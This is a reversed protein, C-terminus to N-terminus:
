GNDQVVRVRAPRLIDEGWHYGRGVEDFVIGAAHQDSQVTGIAEHRAPDFPQGVSEFPMVGCTNLMRALRRRLAHLGEVVSEPSDNVHVLAREFDDELDLLSLLLERKGQEAARAREREVRRRYNEFDALTRIYREHEQSLESKLRAIEAQEANAMEMRDHEAQDM